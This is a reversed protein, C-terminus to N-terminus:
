TAALTRWGLSFHNEPPVQMVASAILPHGGPISQFCHGLTRHIRQKVWAEAAKSRVKSFGVDAKPFPRLRVSSHCDYSSYSGRKAHLYQQRPWSLKM